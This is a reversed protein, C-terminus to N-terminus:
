VVRQGLRRARADRRGDGACGPHLRQDRESGGARAACGGRRAPWQTDHRWRDFRGSVCARLLAHRLHARESREQLRHRARVERGSPRRGGPAGGGHLRVIHRLDIWPGAGGSRAARTRCRRRRARGAGGDRCGASRLPGRGGPSCRRARLDVGCRGSARPLHLGGEAPAVGGVLPRVRQQGTRGAPPPPHHRHTTREHRRRPWRTSWFAGM